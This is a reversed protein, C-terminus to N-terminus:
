SCGLCGTGWPEWSRCSLVCVTSRQSPSSVPWNFGFSAKVFVFHLVSEKGERALNGLCKCFVWGGRTPSSLLVPSMSVPLQWPDRTHQLLKHREQTLLWCGTCACCQPSMRASSQLKSRFLFISGPSSHSSKHPFLFNRQSTMIIFKALAAHFMMEAAQVFLRDSDLALAAPTLSYFHLIEMWCQM